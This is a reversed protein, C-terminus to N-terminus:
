TRSAVTCLPLTVTFTSGKGAETVVSITGRHAEVVSKAIALGLGTGGSKGHTVFPEFISALIQPPIGCGTDSVTIVAMSEQTKVSITVTGAGQIAERGNKLLNCLVRDIRSEDVEVQGDKAVDVQLTVGSSSFASAEMKAANTVLSNVSIKKVNLRTVGRSFDLIEDTMSQMKDVSQKILDHFFHLESDATRAQLFELSGLICTIPSRLDHVISGVTQGLFSLRETRVVEQIYKNNHDRLRENLCWAFNSMLQQPALQLLLNWTSYDLVGLVVADVTSARASRSKADILAMEGFYNGKEMLSLTEQKGGRGRKSIRVTGQIIFYALDGIEDEDFILTDAPLTIKPINPAIELLTAAPIRALLRNERLEALSMHPSPAMELPSPFSIIQTQQRNQM